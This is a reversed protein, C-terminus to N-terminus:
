EEKLEFYNPRWCHGRDELERLKLLGMENQSAVTYVKGKEIPSLSQCRRRIRVVQDGPEFKKSLVKYQRGKEYDKM